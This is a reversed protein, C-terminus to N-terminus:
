LIRRVCPLIEVMLNQADQKDKIQRAFIKGDKFFTINRGALEIMAIGMEPSCKVKGIKQLEKCTEKMDIQYPLETEFMIRNEVNKCPKYMVMDKKSDGYGGIDLIVRKFGVAKLETDIHALIVRNLLKEVPSIQILARGDDDRVRVMDLDKLNKIFKEAYDIRSIKKASIETNTTIRTALCTTSSSYNLNLFKLADKVDESFLGANVLPSIINKQYNVMIGPRDELLDSINTGDVLLDYNENQFYEELIGYMMNKCIYCREQPNSKFSPNKLFDQRLIQHAIGLQNAIKEAMSICDSPMVGNDVTIALAQSAVDEALKAVLTSDAGGSFAVLVKKNQLLNKIKDLKQELDLIIAM